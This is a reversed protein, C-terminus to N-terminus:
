PCRECDEQRTKLRVVENTLEAILATQVRIQDFLKDHIDDDEAIHKLVTTELKDQTKDMRNWSWAGLALIVGMFPGVIKGADILHQIVETNLAIHETNAILQSPM